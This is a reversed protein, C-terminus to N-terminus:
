RIILDVATSHKGHAGVCNTVGATEVKYDTYLQRIIPDDRVTTLVRAGVATLRKVEGALDEHDRRSFGGLTYRSFLERGSSDFYPPDLYVVDNCGATSLTERYDACILIMGSLTKAFDLWENLDPLCLSRGGFPVNYQGKRNVRWI